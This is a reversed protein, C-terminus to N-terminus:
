FALTTVNVGHFHDSIILLAKYLLTECGVSITKFMSQYM